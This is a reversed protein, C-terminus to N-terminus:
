ALVQELGRNLLALEPVNVFRSSGVVRYSSRSELDARLIVSSADIAVRAAAQRIEPVTLKSGICLVVVSADPAERRTMELSRAVGGRRDTWELASFRDMMARASVTPVKAAGAILTLTQEDRLAQGAVSAACSIALEFEDESAYERENTSLVVAIHSRRTDVYQKVLLRNNKASSKWHVHRRDDGPVYDRLTHFAVDSPSLHNTTQGELDRLLGAAITSLGVTRPHVYIEETGSWVRQRRLLGLPDGQVTAVPGVSIVARRHTPVVFLEETQDGGRLRAVGFAAVAKGVPLEIRLNRATRSRLNTLTLSGAARDGVVVRAPEVGIVSSLDLRGLTLLVAIAMLCLGIAALVIGEEWGWFHGVVWGTVTLTILMSGLPSVLRLAGRVASAIAAWRRTARTAAPASRASSPELAVATM